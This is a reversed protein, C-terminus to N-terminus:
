DSDTGTTLTDGNDVDASKNSTSLDMFRHITTTVPSADTDTVIVLDGVKVGFTQANSFYGATNVDAAGDTTEYTWLSPGLNNFSPVLCKFLASNYAM